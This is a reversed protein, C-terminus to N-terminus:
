RKMRELQERIEQLERRISERAHRESAQNLTDLIQRRITESASPRRVPRPQNRAARRKVAAQYIAVFHAKRKAYVKDMTKEFDALRQDFEKQEAQCDTQECGKMKQYADNALLAKASILEVETATKPDGTLALWAELSLRKGVCDLLSTARVGDEGWHEPIRLVTHSSGDSLRETKMIAREVGKRGNEWSWVSYEGNVPSTRYVTIFSNLDGAEDVRGNSAIGFARQATSSLEAGPGDEPIPTARTVSQYLVGKAEKKPADGYLYRFSYVRDAVKWRAVSDFDSHTDKEGRPFTVETECLSREFTVVELAQAPSVSALILPLILIFPKKM